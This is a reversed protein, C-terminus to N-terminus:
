NSGLLMQSILFQGLFIHGTGNQIGSSTVVPHRVVFKELQTSQGPVIDLRWNPLWGFRFHVWWANWGARPRPHGLSTRHIGLEQIARTFQTSEASM